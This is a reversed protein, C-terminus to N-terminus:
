IGSVKLLLLLSGLYFLSFVVQLGKMFSSGQMRKDTLNKGLSLALLTLAVSVLNGVMLQQATLAIMVLRYDRRSNLIDHRAMWLVYAVIIDLFAVLTLIAIYPEHQMEQVISLSQINANMALFAFFAVPSFGLIVIVGYFARKPNLHLMEKIQQWIEGAKSRMTMMM